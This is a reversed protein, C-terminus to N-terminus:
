PVVRLLYDGSRGITERLWRPLIICGKSALFQGPKEVLDGHILFGDRGFTQTEPEPTLRMVVPGHDPHDEPKGILWAGCPIPGVDHLEQSKPNNLGKGNGSYGEGVFQGDRFLKGSSQQYVWM